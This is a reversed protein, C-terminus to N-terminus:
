EDDEEDEEGDQHVRKMRVVDKADLECKVEGFQYFKVDEAKMVEILKAEKNKKNERAEGLKEMAESLNVAANHVKVNRKPAMGPLHGPVEEEKEKEAM